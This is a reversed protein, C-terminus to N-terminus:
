CISVRASNLTMQLYALPPSLEEDVDDTFINLLVTDLASGQPAGGIVPHCTSASDNEEM